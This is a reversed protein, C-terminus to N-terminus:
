MGSLAKALSDGAVVQIYTGDRVHEVVSWSSCAPDYAVCYGQTPDQTLQLFLWMPRPETELDDPDVTAEFPEVLFSRLNELTIGHYNEFPDRREIERAISTEVESRTM